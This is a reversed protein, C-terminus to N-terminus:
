QTKASGATRSMQKAQVKGNFFQISIATAGDEWTTSAGSLGAIDFANSQTPEGLVAVVEQQSMGTQIKEFNEATIKSGCAALLLSALVPLITQKLTHLNM